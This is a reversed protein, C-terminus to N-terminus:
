GVENRYLEYVRNALNTDIIGIAKINSRGIAKNLEIADFEFIYDVHYHDCKSLMHKKTRSSADNTVILLKIKKEKFANLLADGFIIMNAKKAIGILGFVSSM